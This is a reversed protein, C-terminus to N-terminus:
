PKTKQLKQNIGFYKNLTYDPQYNDPKRVLKSHDYEMPLISAATLPVTDNSIIQWKKMLDLLENVKPRFKAEGALNEIELPDNKLNFLQNYNREPYRIMKWEGTRVARVTNRYATFLSSRVEDSKGSIVPMLSKGDINEPKPLCCLEALTPYIDFLYVLADTVKGPPLGPGTMIMPVKISHEYLNQKGLLGHSGAALGNDATYIIITNDALDNDNLSKIIDGIRDDLHSILSYYDALVQKVKEPPRPWPLLNEDRVTLDDFAFPHLPMFNGPLPISDPLYRDIYDPEPSYPDHPVTFAVYCFFPNRYNGSAYENIFDIAARSFIDTSFGKNKPSLLKGDPGLDRVPINFHDAMGGLFVDNGKQFGAEFASKENHWKGTGFTVYGHKSFYM